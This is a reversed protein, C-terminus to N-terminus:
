ELYKTSSGKEIIDKDFIRSAERGSSSIMKSLEFIIFSGFNTNSTLRLFAGRRHWVNVINELIKIIICKSMKVILVM